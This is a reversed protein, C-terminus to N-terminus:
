PKLNQVYFLIRTEGYTKDKAILWDPHETIPCSSRQELILQGGPRLCEGCSIMELFRDSRFPETHGDYPPDALIFDYADRCRKLFAFVDARVCGRAAEEECLAQVNAKLNQYVRGDQEVWCVYEAGRSWAELGLAGSGAFLDLVRSGVMDAGISSFVAERVREQTPRVGGRPVRITRGGLTGGTVRM